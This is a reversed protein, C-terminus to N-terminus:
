PTSSILTPGRAELVDFTARLTPTASATGAFAVAASMALTGASLTTLLWWRRTTAM